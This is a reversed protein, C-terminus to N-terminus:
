SATHTTLTTLIYGSALFLRNKLNAKALQFYFLVSPSKSKSIKELKSKFDIMVLFRVPTCVLLMRVCVLVYSYVSTDCSHMLTVYPYIRTFVLLLHIRVVLIRICVVLM